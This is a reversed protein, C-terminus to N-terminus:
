RIIFAVKCYSLVHNLICLMVDSCCLDDPVCCSCFLFHKASV